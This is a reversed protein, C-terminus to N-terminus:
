YSVLFISSFSLKLMYSIRVVNCIIDFLYTCACMYMWEHICVCVHMTYYMCIYLVDMRACMCLTLLDHFYFIIIETFNDYNNNYMTFFQFIPENACCFHVSIYFM